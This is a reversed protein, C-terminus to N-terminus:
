IPRFSFSNRHHGGMGAPAKADVESTQQTLFPVGGAGPRYDSRIDFARIKAVLMVSFPRAAFVRVEQLHPKGGIDRVIAEASLHKSLDPGPSRVSGPALNNWQYIIRGDREMRRSIPSALIKGINHFGPPAGRGAMKQYQELEAPTPARGDVSVLTWQQGEAARPNFRDVRVRGGPADAPATENRTTREFAVPRARNAEAILQQLLADARAAVPSALLVIAPFLRLASFRTM